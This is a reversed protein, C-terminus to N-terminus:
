FATESTSHDHVHAATNIVHDECGFYQLSGTKLNEQDLKDINTEYSEPDILAFMENDMESVFAGIGRIAFYFNSVVDDRQYFYM